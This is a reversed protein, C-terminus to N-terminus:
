LRQQAYWARQRGLAEFALCMGHSVPSEYCSEQRRVRSSRQGGRLGVPVRERRSRVHDVRLGEQVLISPGSRACMKSGNVITAPRVLGKAERTSRVSFVNRAFSPIRLLKGPPSSKLKEPWGEVWRAGERPSIKRSGRPPRRARSNLARLSCM